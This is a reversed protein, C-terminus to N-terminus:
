EDTDPVAVFDSEEYNSGTGSIDMPEQQQEQQKQSPTDHSEERKIKAM